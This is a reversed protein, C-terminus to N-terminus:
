LRSLPTRGDTERGDQGDTWVRPERQEAPHHGETVGRGAAIFVDRYTVQCDPTDGNSQPESQLHLMAHNKVEAVRSDESDEAAGQQGPPPVDPSVFLSAKDIRLVPSFILRFSAVSVCRGSSCM